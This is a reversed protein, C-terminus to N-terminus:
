DGASRVAELVRLAEVTARVDHVRVCDAGHMAAILNAAVSGVLRDEVPAPTAGDVSLVRGLFSKRSLGVLVPYGEHKITPLRNLIKLNDEVNKAFGIGPDVWIRERPIGRDECLRARNTLFSAIDRILDDYDTRLQMDKPTGRMHMLCVEANYAAVTALMTSDTRLASVDNVMDVGEDLCARAVAAKQTDISIKADTARRIRRLAPLVRDMEEAADVSDSGPRTSEGGLDLIDAGEEVMTMATAYAAEAVTYRSEPFFSDPTCNIIGMVLCRCKKRTAVGFGM